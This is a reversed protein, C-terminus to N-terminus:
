IVNKTKSLSEANTFM